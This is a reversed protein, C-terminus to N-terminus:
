EFDIDNLIRDTIEQIMRCLGLEADLFSRVHPEGSLEMNAYAFADIRDTLTGDDPSNQLKFNEERYADVRKMLEPRSKLDLRRCDYERYVKSRKIAEILVRLENDVETM